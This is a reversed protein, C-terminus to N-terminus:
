AAFAALLKEKLGTLRKAEHYNSIAIELANGESLIMVNKRARTVEVYLLRRQLMSAPKKPILILANRCEGGQSKHATLAYNLEIDDLESGTLFIVDDETSVTMRIIGTHKQIDTIVGETGNCYGKQYNNTNFIVKDGVTYTYYGYILSDERNYCQEHIKRNLQISGSNFKVNRSPTFVKYDDIGNRVCNKIAKVTYDIMTDESEFRKIAFNKDVKLRPNGNIVRKSNEIILSGDEQRFIKTLRYVEFLGSEVMDFLVNGAGVSPLQDYDGILVLTANNKLSSVLRAMLVVDVMSFEDVFVYDANIKTANQLIDTEYPRIDLMKHITFAPKGTSEKMRQAARGTPACLSVIADPTEKEIKKLLGNLVTTKGTGPGGIIFKVGSTHLINFTDKQEMSYAANCIKEIQEVAYRGSGRKTASESLRKINRAIMKEAIADQELYVYLTDEVHDEELVYSPSILEEGIFLVSTEYGCRAKKEMERFSQCIDHFSMKTNGNKQNQILIHEVVAHVRKKDCAYMGQEKALKECTSFEAGSYLLTYPNKFIVEAAGEQFKDTLKKVNYYAGGKGQLFSLLEDFAIMNRIIKFTKSITQINTGIEKACVDWGTEDKCKEYLTEHYLSSIKEALVQGVDSFLGTLLFRKLDEKNYFCLRSTELRFLDGDYEGTLELPVNFPYNQIVGECTVKGSSTRVSFRTLGTKENRWTYRIFAGRLIM